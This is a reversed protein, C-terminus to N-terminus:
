KKVEEEDQDQLFGTVANNRNLVRHAAAMVEDLTVSQLIQPWDEVDKITLGTTLASGYLHARGEVDDMDYIEAARLQRKVREFAAPDAGETLFRQLVEDLANELDTLSVEPVPLAVLTFTEPDLSTGDYYVASYVAKAEAGFQLAKALVSTTTNGGLLEALITLAAADKQDGKRRAPAMYSRIVYPEAVRADTMSLRREALQPPEQPRARREFGPTPTIPGYYQETLKRVEAPDVDGAVIVVANNPAYYTQYFDLADQRTLGEMEHRWGIIPIGYPHNLFQAARYQEDFIGDPNNDTIESREELIVARETRVDDESLTLNRMRDAEMRVVLELRDAAIRQFYATQDWSTFANDNGGQAEVTASFAGPAMTDTGKFMLHELFHAIGSKGPPEDAAGVRYWIMHSVVPARHDEIVVVELGNALTFNTVEEAQASFTGLFGLALTPLIRKLM